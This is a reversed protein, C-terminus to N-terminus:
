RPLRKVADSPRLPSGIATEPELPQSLERIIRSPSGAVVCNPPVDRVVVSLAGVIANEGVTVGPLIVSNIGIFARKKIRVGGSKVEGHGTYYYANDHVLITAGSTIVAADEITILYPHVNDLLCFYGIEVNRGVKVGRLRHFFVRLAKHPAFWAPLLFLTSRLRRIFRGKSLYAVDRTTFEVPLNGSPLTNSSM